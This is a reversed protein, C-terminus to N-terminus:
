NVKLWAGGESKYQAVGSAAINSQGVVAVANSAHLNKVIILRNPNSAAAPLTITSTGAAYNVRVTEIGPLVTYTATTVLFGTENTYDVDINAPVNLMASVSRTTGKVKVRQNYFTSTSSFRYGDAENGVSIGSVGDYIPGSIHINNGPADLWNWQFYSTGFFNTNDVDNTCVLKKTIPTPEFRCGFFSNNVAFTLYIACKMPISTSGGNEFGVQYFNNGNFRDGQTVDPRFVVGSDGVIKGGWWGNANAWNGNSNTTGGSPHVYIGISNRRLYTFTIRNFQAGQVVATGSAFGGVQNGYKFGMVEGMDARCSECSRVWVGTNTQTGYNPAGATQNTGHIQGKKGDFTQLYGDMIIGDSTGFYLQGENVIHIRKNSPYVIPATFRFGTGSRPIFLTAGNPASGMWTAVATACNTGTPSSGVAAGPAGNAVVGPLSLINTWSTLTTGGALEKADVYSTLSASAATLDSQTALYSTDARVKNGSSGDGDITTGDTSVLGGGGGDGVDGPAVEIFNGSADSAIYYAPTGTHTGNGYTTDSILGTSDITLVKQEINSRANFFDIASSKDAVSQWRAGWKMAMATAGPSYQLNLTHYGGFGNAVTGSSTVVGATILSYTNTAASARTFVAAQNGGTVDIGTGSTSNFLGAIGSSSNTASFARGTSSNTATLTANSGSRSGTFNTTYSGGGDITTQQDLSGNWILTSDNRKTLGNAGNLSLGAGEGDEGGGNLAYTVKETIPNYQLSYQQASDIIGQIRIKGGDHGLTVGDVASANVYGNGAPGVVNMFADGGSTINSGIFASASGDTISSQLSVSDLQFISYAGTQTIYNGTGHRFFWDHFTIGYGNQNIDLISDLSGGWRVDTGGGGIQIGRSGTISSLGGGGSASYTVKSNTPNYQLTYAQASDIIGEMFYNGDQQDMFIRSGAVQLESGVFAAKGAQLYVVPDASYINSISSFHDGSGDSIFSSFTTENNQLLNFFASQAVYDGWGHNFIGDHFTIGFGDQDVDVVSDLTGGWRVNTGSSSTHLGRDATIALLGTGGGIESDFGAKTWYTGNGVWLATSIRAIGLKNSVTDTPPNLASDVQMRLLRDGYNKQYFRLKLPNINQAQSAVACVILTLILFIKKM